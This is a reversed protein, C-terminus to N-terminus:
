LGLDDHALGQIRKQRVKEQKRLLLEGKKSSRKVIGAEWVWLSSVPSMVGM